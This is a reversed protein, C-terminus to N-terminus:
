IPRRLTYNNILNGVDIISAHYEVTNLYDNWKYGALCTDITQYGGGQNISIQVINNAINVFSGASTVADIVEQETAQRM